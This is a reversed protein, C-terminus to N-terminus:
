NQGEELEDAYVLLSKAIARIDSPNHLKRAEPRVADSYKAFARRTWQRVNPATMQEMLALNMCFTNARQEDNRREAAADEAAKRKEDAIRKAEARNRAEWIRQAEVYTQIDSGQQGVRAALAPDTQEIFTKAEAEEQALRQQEELKRREKDRQECAQEYAKNLPLGNVVDAALHPAHDLIFGCLKLNWQWTHKNPSEGIDVSGRRWRGNERRGAAYLVRATSMARAGTSQNRRLTNMSIVYDALDEGEYVKVTPEVEAQQCAAFRNRGDLIRGTTDVMIPQRQGVTKIDDALATIEDPSLMPYMDAYPHIGTIEIM